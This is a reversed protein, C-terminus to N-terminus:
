VLYCVSQEDPAPKGHEESRPDTLAISVFGEEVRFCYPLGATHLIEGCQSM